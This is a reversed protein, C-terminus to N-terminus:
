SRRWSLLPQCPRAPRDRSASSPSPCCPRPRPERLLTLRQEEGPEANFAQLLSRCRRRELMLDPDSARYLEGALMKEKESRGM